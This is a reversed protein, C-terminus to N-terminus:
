GIGNDFDADIVASFPNQVIAFGHKEQLREPLAMLGNGFRLGDKKAENIIEQPDATGKDSYKETLWEHWADRIRRGLGELNGTRVYIVSKDCCAYASKESVCRLMVLNEM